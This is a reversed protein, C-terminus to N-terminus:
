NATRRRRWLITIGIVALSSWLVLGSPEPIVDGPVTLEESLGYMHAYSGWNALSRDIWYSNHQNSEGWTVLEGGGIYARAEGTWRTGTLTRGVLTDGFEDVNIPNALSGDWMDDFGDAVRVGDLRYVPASVLAHDRADVPPYSGGFSAIIHWTAGTTDVTGAADAAAQVLSDFGGPGDAFSRRAYFTTSTVFALHYTDGPNLDSPIIAATTSRALLPLLLLVVGPLRLM